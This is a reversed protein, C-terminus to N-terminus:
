MECRISILEMLVWLMMCVTHTLFEILCLVLLVEEQDQKTEMYASLEMNGLNNVIKKIQNVIIFWKEVFNGKTKSFLIADNGLKM